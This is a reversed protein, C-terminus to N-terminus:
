KERELDDRPREVNAKISVRATTRGQSDIDGDADADLKWEGSSSVTLTFPRHSQDTGTMQVCVGEGIVSTGERFVDTFEGDWAAGGSGNPHIYLYNDGLGDRFVCNFSASIVPTGYSVRKQPIYIHADTFNTSLAGFAALATLMLLSTMSFVRRLAALAVEEFIRKM